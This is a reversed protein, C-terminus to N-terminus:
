HKSKEGSDPLASTAALSKPMVGKIIEEIRHETTMAKTTIIDLMTKTTDDDDPLHEALANYVANSGQYETM